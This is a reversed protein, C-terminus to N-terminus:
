IMGKSAKARWMSRLFPYEMVKRLVGNFMLFSRDERRGSEEM